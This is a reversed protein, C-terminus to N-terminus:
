QAEEVEAKKPRGRKKVATFSAPTFKVEKTLKYVGYLSDPEMLAPDQNELMTKLTEDEKEGWEIANLGDDVIVLSPMIQKPM